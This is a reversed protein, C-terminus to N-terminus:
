EGPGVPDGNYVDFRNSGGDPNHIFSASGLWDYIVDRPNGSGVRLQHGGRYPAAEELLDKSGYLVLAKPDTSRNVLQLTMTVSDGAKARIVHADGEVNGNQAKWEYYFPTSFSEFTSEISDGLVSKLGKLIKDLTEDDFKSNESVNSNYVISDTLVRRIAINKIDYFLVKVDYKAGDKCKLGGPADDGCIKWSKTQQVPELIPFRPANNDNYVLM